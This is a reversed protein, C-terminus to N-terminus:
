RVNTRGYFKWEVALAYKSNVLINKEGYQRAHKGPVDFDFMRREMVPVRGNQGIDGEIDTAALVDGDDAAGARAFRCQQMKEGPEQPRRTAADGNIAAGQALLGAM